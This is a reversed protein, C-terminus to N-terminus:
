QHLEETMIALVKPDSVTGANGILQSVRALAESAAQRYVQDVTCDAGWPQTSRLTVTVQIRATCNTRLEGKPTQRRGTSNM